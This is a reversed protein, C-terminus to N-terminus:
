WVRHIIGILLYQQVYYTCKSSIRDITSQQLLNLVNLLVFGQHPGFLIENVVLYGYHAFKLPVRASVIIM